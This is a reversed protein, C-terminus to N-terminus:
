ESPVFSISDSDKAEIWITAGSCRANTADQILTVGSALEVRKTRYTKGRVKVTIAANDVLVGQEKTQKKNAAVIHRNIFVEAKAM